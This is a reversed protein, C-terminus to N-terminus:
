RAFWPSLYRSLNISLLPIVNCPSLNIGKRFM